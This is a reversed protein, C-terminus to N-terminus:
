QSTIQGSRKKVVVVNGAPPWFGSNIAFSGGTLAGGTAAQGITGDLGFTGGTSSGGGGAIVNPDLNFSGGSSANSVAEATTKNSVQQRIPPHAVALAAPHMEAAPSKTASLLPTAFAIFMVALLFKSLDKFM